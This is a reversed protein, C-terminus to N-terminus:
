GPGPTGGSLAGPDSFDGPLVENRRSAVAHGEGDVAIRAVKRGARGQRVQDGLKDRGRLAYRGGDVALDDGAAGPRVGRKGVSGHDLDHGRDLSSLSFSYESRSRAKAEQGTM